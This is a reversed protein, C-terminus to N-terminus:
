AYLRKVENKLLKGTPTRPLEASFDFSRPIKFGALRDRLYATLEAALEPGPTAGPVPQVVAKVEEGMEPHPIGIVAVDAVAPHLALADEIEQPYINVGGSIIMFAKRDTLYLYGEGDLYGVDGTTSWFAHQPHYAARTKDPDHLYEFAQADREFYVTGIKGTALETGEDDCIHLTGFVSRGVSGPHAVWDPSNIYTMGIGETSAYYERLIPGWWDIMAKKVDVPCPAAAHVAVRHSSLDYRLRLEEPLRLLRVFMTPVWQSHTVGYREIARLAQEANFRGMLVVTGGLAQVTGCWRLPAAHYLPAPSLYVIPEADFGFFFYALKTLPNHEEDVRQEPLPPRVGKPRGTTGSSYLLSAGGWLVPVDAEEDTEALRSEYSECGEVDGGYALRLEVGPCAGAVRAALEGLGASVVLMRAGCDNIIYAAEDPTLHCNVATLYLGSRIAAWYVEFARLTNDTFLAVVDGRRFGADYLLRSLRRSRDALEGYSLEEGTDALVAALREPDERAFAGPYM